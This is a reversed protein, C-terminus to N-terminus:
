KILKNTKLAKEIAELSKQENGGKFIFIMQQGVKVGLSLLGLINNAPMTKGNAKVEIASDLKRVEQVIAGAPRAHIGVPDTIIVKLEKM